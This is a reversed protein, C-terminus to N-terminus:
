DELAVVDPLRGAKVDAQAERIHDRLQAENTQHEVWPLQDNGLEIFDQGHPNHAAKHSRSLDRPNDYFKGDAMSQVPEAFPRILMPCALVDSRKGKARHRRKLKPMNSWDIHGYGDRYAQTSM